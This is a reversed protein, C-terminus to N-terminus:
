TPPRGSVQTVVGRCVHQKAQKRVRGEAKPGTSVTTWLCRECEAMWKNPNYTPFVRVYTPAPM